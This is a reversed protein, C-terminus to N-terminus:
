ALRQRIGRGQGPEELVVEWTEGRWEIRVRAAVKPKANSFEVMGRELEKFDLDAEGAPHLVVAPEMVPLPSNFYKLLRLDAARYRKSEIEDGTLGILLEEAFVPKGQGVAQFEGGPGGERRFLRGQASSPSASKTGSPQSASTTGSPRRQRWFILGYREAEPLRSGACRSSRRAATRGVPLSPLSSEPRSAVPADASLREAGKQKTPKDDFFVEADAPM